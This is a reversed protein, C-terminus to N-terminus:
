AQLFTWWIHFVRGKPGASSSGPAAGREIESGTDRCCLVILVSFLMVHGNRGMEKAGLTTKITGM